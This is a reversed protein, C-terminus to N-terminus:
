FAADTAVTRMVSGFREGTEEWTPWALARERAANGMARARTRDNFVHEIARSLAAVDGPPVLVGDSGSRVLERVGPADFGVIPLGSAMAEAVAIPWGEYRSATLFLRSAAYLQSLEDRDVVGALRITGDAASVASRIRAEEAENKRPDGVIIFQAGRVGADGFARIAEPVGKGPVGNAVCLVVKGELTAAEATSAHDRGPPIVEIPAHTFRRVTARLHESVVVVLSAAALTRREPEEWEPRRNAASPLQHALAVIRADTRPPGKTFALSDVVVVDADVPVDPEEMSVRWGGRRLSQIVYRDYLNGGTVAEIGGPVLFAAKRSTM